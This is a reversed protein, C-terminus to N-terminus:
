KVHVYNATNLIMYDCHLTYKCYNYTNIRSKQNNTYIYTYISIYMYLYIYKVKM